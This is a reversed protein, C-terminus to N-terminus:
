DEIKNLVAFDGHFKIAWENYQKAAEIETSFYKKYTKGKVMIIATWPKSRKQQKYRFFSVGKYKSFLSDSHASTNWASQKANVLRLNSKLNNLPNGDIHDVIQGKKAKMIFRHLYQKEKRLYIRYKGGDQPVAWMNGPTDFLYLFERDLLVKSRILDMRATRPRGM